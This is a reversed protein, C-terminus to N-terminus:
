LMVTASSLPVHMQKVRLLGQWLHKNPARLNPFQGEMKAKLCSEVTEHKNGHNRFWLQVISDPVTFSFLEGRDCALTSLAVTGKQHKMSNTQTWGQFNLHFSYKNISATFNSSFQLSAKHLYLPLYIFPYGLIVGIAAPLPLQIETMLLRFHLCGNQQTSFKENKLKNLLSSSMSLVAVWADHNAYKDDTVLSGDSSLPTFEIISNELRNSSSLLILNQELISKNIIFFSVDGHSTGNEEVVDNVITMIDLDSTAVNSILDCLKSVESIVCYDILVAQRLGDRLALIDFLLQRWARKRKSAICNIALKKWSNEFPHVLTSLNSERSFITEDQDM